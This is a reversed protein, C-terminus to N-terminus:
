PVPGVSARAGRQDRGRSALIVSLRAPPSVTPVPQLGWYAVALPMGEREFSDGHAGLDRKTEDASFLREDHDRGPEVAGPGDIAREVGSRAVGHQERFHSSPEPDFGFLDPLGLPG